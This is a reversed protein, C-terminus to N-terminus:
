QLEDAIMHGLSGPPYDNSNLRISNRRFCDLLKTKLERLSTRGFHRIDLLDYESLKLFDNISKAGRYNERNLCRQLRVSPGIANILEDIPMNLKPILSNKEYAEPPLQTTIHIGM